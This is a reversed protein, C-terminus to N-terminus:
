RSAAATIHISAARSLGLTVTTGPPVRALSYYSMPDGRLDNGDVSIITDGVQLGSKAAPGDPRIAAVTPNATEPDADDPPPALEFGLDGLRAGPPPSARLDGVDNNGPALTAPWDVSGHPSDDLGSDASIRVRGSPAGELVFRGDAGSRRPEAGGAHFSFGGFPDRAAVYVLYGSLPTSGDFAVLRGTVRARGALRLVLGTLDQGATLQAQVAATGEAAKVSVDLSGPPLDRLAFRGATRFFRESRSFGTARDSVRVTFEDPLRGDSELSGAISGTPRITVTVSAGTAVREVQGEGGGRRYARVTYTAPNLKDIVFGGDTDTATSTGDFLWRPSRYAGRGYPGHESERECGVFADTIAKGREDVVRGRIVGSQNEVVIRARATQGAAVEVLASDHRGGVGSRGGPGGSWAMLRYSGPRLGRLLFSGDQGTLSEHGGGGMLIEGKIREGTREAQVLMDAVPQGREDVVEGAVDGGADLRIDATAVEGESVTVVVPDTTTPQDPSLAKLEYTGGRIRRLQFTGDLDSSTSGNWGAPQGGERARAEVWVTAHAVPAGSASRVTGRITAKRDGVIWRQEAPPADAAVVVDPHASAADIGACTVSVRYRGPLIGGFSVRGDADIVERRLQIGDVQDLYVLGEACPTDDGAVVVRGSVSQAPHLGIVVGDASQGLGLLVSERAEGYGGPSTAAPKYRGPALRTFRFRGDDDAVATVRTGSLSDPDSEKLHLVTSVRAGPVARGTGVDVVRGSLSSGPTLLIEVSHAPAASRRWADAYGDAQAFLDLNGPAVWLRFSGDALSRARAAVGDPRARLIARVWTGAVPGGGIDKVTGSVEVGGSRLTIDIGSRTEGPALRVATVQRADRYRGPMFRPAGADVSYRGPLLGSLRFRGDAGTTTCSPEGIGDGGVDDAGAFFAFGSFASGCVQASPIPSGAMDRVTGEIAAPRTAAGDIRAGQGHSGAEGAASRSSVPGAEERDPDRGLRWWILLALALSAALGVAAHRRRLV